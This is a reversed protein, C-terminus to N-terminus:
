PDPFYRPVLDVLDSWPVEMPNGAPDAFRLGSGAPECTEAALAGQADRHQLRISYPPSRNLSTVKTIDRVSYGSGNVCLEVYDSDPLWRRFTLQGPQSHRELVDEYLSLAKAMNLRGQWLIKDTLGPDFDVSAELRRKIEIPPHVYFARLLAATLTVLPAAFSTGYMTDSAADQYPVACGPAVVDAYIKSWNSFQALGLNGDLAAVTIIQKGGVAHTGGYSPPYLRPPQDLPSTENGAAVVLLLEKGNIAQLALELETQSVISVNAVQANNLAFNIGRLLGEARPEYRDGGARQVVNVANIRVLDPLNPFQSLLGSGGTLIQAVRTGHWSLAYDKYPAIHDDGDMGMGFRRRGDKYTAKLLRNPFTAPDLGTDIITVVVHDTPEDRERSIELTRKLVAGVLQADYPWPHGAAQAVQGAQRCATDDLDLDDATKPQILWVPGSIVNTIIPSDRAAQNGLEAIRAKVDEANLGDKVQFTTPYTVIPLILERVGELKELDAGPNRLEVMERLTANCRPSPDNADCGLQADAGRGINRKLMADLTDGALVKVPFNRRWKLCAPMRVEAGGAGQALSKQNLEYFVKEFAATRAHCVANILDEPKENPRLRRVTPESSRAVYDIVADPVASTVRVTIFDSRAPAATSWSLAAVCFASALRLIARSSKVPLSRRQSQSRM